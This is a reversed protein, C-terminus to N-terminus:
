ALQYEPMTMILHIMGRIRGGLTGKAQRLYDELRGITTADLDRSLLLEVYHRVVAAPTTWGHAVARDAPDAIAGYRDGTSLEAAFNDRRLM